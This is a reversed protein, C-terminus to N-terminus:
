LLPLTSLLMLVAWVQEHTRPSLGFRFLGPSANGCRHHLWMHVHAECFCPPISTSLVGVVSANPAVVLDEGLTPQFLSMATLAQEAATVAIGQAALQQLFRATLSLLLLGRSKQMQFDLGLIGWNGLTDQWAGTQNPPIQFLVHRM